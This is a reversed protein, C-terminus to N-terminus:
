FSHTAATLRQSKLLGFWACHSERNGKSKCTASEAVEGADHRCM